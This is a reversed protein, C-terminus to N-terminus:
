AWWFSVSFSTSLSRIYHWCRPPIYLAEGPGLVLDSYEAQQLLPWTDEPGEVDAQSTNSLLPDPHAYLLHSQDEGYLRIYKYGVVQVLINHDPDHHLPSVTGRPGIWANIRPPQQGLHCYDPVMIDEMLQPVQDLLHHQALYGTPREENGSRAVYETFYEDLTMLRQYWSSDTYRAGVEVPVTRAGAVKRFYSLSWNKLAPWHSVVGLLKVPLSDEMYRLLFRDLPPCTAVALPRSVIATDEQIIPSEDTETDAHRGVAALRAFPNLTAAASHLPSHEVTAGMLLGRDCARMIGGVEELLSPAPIASNLLGCYLRRLLLGVLAISGWTFVLRWTISVEKWHGTNLRQWTHDLLASVVVVSHENPTDLADYPSERAVEQLLCALTHSVWSGTVDAEVGEPLMWAPVPSCPNVSGLRVPQRQHEAMGVDRINNRQAQLEARMREQVETLATWVVARLDGEDPMKLRKLRVKRHLSDAPPRM